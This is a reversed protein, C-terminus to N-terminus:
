ACGGSAFLIWAKTCDIRGDRQDGQDHDAQADEAEGPKEARLLQAGDGRAVRAAPRMAGPEPCRCLSAASAWAVNLVRLSRRWCQSSASVPPCNSVTWKLSRFREAARGVNSNLRRKRTRISTKKLGPSVAPEFISERASATHVGVPPSCECRRQVCPPKYRTAPPRAVRARLGRRSKQLPRARALSRLLALPPLPARQKPECQASCSCPRACPSCSGSSGSSGVSHGVRRRRVPSACASWASVRQVQRWGM